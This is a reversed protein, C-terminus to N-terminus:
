RMRNKVDEAISKIISPFGSIVAKLAKTKLGKPNAYSEYIEPHVVDLSSINEVINIKDIEPTKYNDDIYVIMNQKYCVLMNPLHWIKERLITSPKYGKSIFKKAWYSQWQENVHNTGGQFPISASFVIVPAFSVLTEVFADAKEEPLHEAVELSIALDFKQDLKLPETLDHPIFETAPILLQSQSVYDGDVGCIQKVGSDNFVKLWTGIGCGVDIVSEPKFLAILVPVVQLASNLSGEKLDQYFKGTYCSRM